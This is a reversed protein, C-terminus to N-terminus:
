TVLANPAPMQGLQLRWVAAHQAQAAFISAVTASLSGTTLAPAAQLYATLQAREVRLLLRMLEAPTTPQGLDYSAKPRQANGGARGILKILRDAHLVEQGLFQRAVKAQTGSLLPTAATYAAIAYYEAALLGNLTAADAENGQTRQNPHAGRTRGGSSGCAATGLAGLAGWGM